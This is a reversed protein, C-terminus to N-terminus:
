ETTPVQKLGTFKSITRQAELGSVEPLLFLDQAKINVDM